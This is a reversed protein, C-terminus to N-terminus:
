RRIGFQDFLANVKDAGQKAAEQPSLKEDLLDNVAATMAQNMELKINPHPVLAKGATLADHLLKIMWRRESPVAAVKYVDTRKYSPM